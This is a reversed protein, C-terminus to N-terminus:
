KMCDYLIEDKGDHDTVYRTDGMMKLMPNMYEADTMGTVCASKQCISLYTKIAISM